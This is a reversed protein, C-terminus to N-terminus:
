QLPDGDVVILCRCIRPPSRASKGEQRLIKAAVHTRAAIV